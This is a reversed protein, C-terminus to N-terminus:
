GSATLQRRLWWGLALAGASPLVIWTLLILGFVVLVARIDALARRLGKAGFNSPSARRTARRARRAVRLERALRRPEGRPRRRGSSARMSGTSPRPWTTQVREAAGALPQRGLIDIQLSSRHSRSSTTEVDGLAPPSRASSRPRASSRSRSPPRRRRPTRSRRPRRTWPTPSPRPRRRSGTVSRRSGVAPGVGARASRDARPGPRRRRLRHTRQRPAADGRARDRPDLDGDGGAYKPCRGSLPPGPPVARPWALAVRPQRTRGDPAPAPPHVREAAVARGGRVVHLVADIADETERLAAERPDIELSFISTLSSQMQPITNSKLVYIPM